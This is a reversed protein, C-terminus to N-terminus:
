SAQPQSASRNLKSEIFGTIQHLTEFNSPTVEEDTITLSFQEEIFLLLKLVAYSDLIGTSILSANPEPLLQGDGRLLEERIFRTIVIETQMQVEECRLM